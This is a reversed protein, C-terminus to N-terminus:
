GAITGDVLLNSGLCDPSKPELYCSSPVALFSKFVKAANLFADVLLRIDDKHIHLHGNNVAVLTSVKQSM